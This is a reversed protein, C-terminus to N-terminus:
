DDCSEGIAEGVVTVGFQDFMGDIVQNGLPNITQRLHFRKQGVQKDFGMRRRRLQDDEVEVGGVIRDM